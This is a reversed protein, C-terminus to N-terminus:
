CLLIQLCFLHNPKMRLSTITAVSDIKYLQRLKDELLDKEEDELMDEEVFEEEGEEEVGIELQAM